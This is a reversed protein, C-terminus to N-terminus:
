RVATLYECIVDCYANAGPVYSGLNYNIQVAATDYTNITHAGNAYEGDMSYLDWACCGQTLQIGHQRAIRDEISDCDDDFRTLGSGVVLQLSGLQSFNSIAIPAGVAVGGISAAPDFWRLIICLLQGASDLPISGTSAGIPVRKARWNSAWPSYPPLARPDAPTRFGHRKFTITSGADTWAPPTAIVGNKYVPSLDSRTGVVPNLNVVPVLGRGTSAMPLPNVWRDPSMMIQLQPEGNAGAQAAEVTELYTAFWESIPLMLRWKYETAVATSGPVVYSGSSAGFTEPTYGTAALVKQGGLVGMPFQHQRRLESIMWLAHGDMQPGAGYINLGGSQFPIQSAGIFNYPFYPSAAVTIGGGTTYAGLAGKIDVDIELMTLYDSNHLPNLNVPVINGTQPVAAISKNTDYEVYPELNVLVM